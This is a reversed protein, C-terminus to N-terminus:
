AQLRAKEVRRLLDTAGVSSGTRANLEAQLVHLMRDHAACMTPNDRGTATLHRPEDCDDLICTKTM